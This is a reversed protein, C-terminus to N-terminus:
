DSAPPQLPFRKDTIRTAAKSHVDLNSEASFSSHCYRRCPFDMASRGLRFATNSMSSLKCSHFVPSSIIGCFISFSRKTGGLVIVTHCARSGDRALSDRVNRKRHESRAANSSCRTQRIVSMIGNTARLVMRELLIRRRHGARVGLDM